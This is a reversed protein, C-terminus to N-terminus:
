KSGLQRLNLQVGKCNEGFKIQVILARTVQETVSETM